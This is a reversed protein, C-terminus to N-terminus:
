FCPPEVAYWDVGLTLGLRLEGDPGTRGTEDHRFFPRGDPGLVNKAIQGDFIDNMVGAQRTKTRWDDVVDEFGHLSLLKPLQDSISKYPFQMKPRRAKKSRKRKRKTPKRSDTIFLPFGCKQCVSHQYDVPHPELCSPCVPLISFKPELKLHSQVTKYTTAMGQLVDLRLSLFVLRFVGLLAALARMPVHFQSHLWVVLLYLIQVSRYEHASEISPPPSYAVAEHFPDSSNEDPQVPACYVLPLEYSNGVLALLPSFPLALDNGSDRMDGPTGVHIDGQGNPDDEWFNDDEKDSEDVENGDDDGGSTARLNQLAEYRKAIEFPNIHSSDDSDTSTDTDHGSPMTTSAPSTPAMVEDWIASFSPLPSPADTQEASSDGTPYPVPTSPGPGQETGSSTGLAQALTAAQRSERNRHDRWDRM